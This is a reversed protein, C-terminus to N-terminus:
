LKFTIEELQTLQMRVHGHIGINRWSYRCPNNKRSQFEFGNEQEEEADILSPM